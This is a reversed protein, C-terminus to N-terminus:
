GGVEQPWMSAPAVGPSEGFAKWAPLVLLSIVAM